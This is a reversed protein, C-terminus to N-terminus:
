KVVCCDRLGALTASGIGSVSDLGDCSAFAGNDTRFQLIAAAKSAGIGPLNELAAVDATNVNVPCGASATPAASNPATSAAAASTAGQGVPTAGGPTAAPTGGLAAAGSASTAVGFSVLERLNALTSPGIGEVKDLDDITKFPGNQERYAIIAAAKSPGIGPLEELAASDAANVDVGALALSVVFALWVFM